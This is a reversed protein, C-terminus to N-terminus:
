RPPARGAVVRCWAPESPLEWTRPLVAALDLLAVRLASLLGSWGAGLRRTRAMWGELDRRSDLDRLPPLFSVPRGAARLAEVLSRRTHRSCWRVAALEAAIPRAAALLYIGGDTAPGLVVQDPNRELEARARSLAAADIEPSDTGVVILPGDRQARRIAGMLRRGFGREAQADGVADPALRDGGPSCVRLRCGAARGAELVSELCHQHFERELGEFGRRLWRRRAQERGPGLTFVLLTPGTTETM